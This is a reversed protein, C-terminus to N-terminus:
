VRVHLFKNRKRAANSGIVIKSEIEDCLDIDSNEDNTSSENVKKSKRRRKTKSTKPQDDETSVEDISENTIELKKTKRKTKSTKPQDDETTFEDSSVNNIM